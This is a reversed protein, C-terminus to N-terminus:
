YKLNERKELWSKSQSNKNGGNIEQRLKSGNSVAPSLAQHQVEQRPGKGEVRRKLKSKEGKEGEPPQQEGGDRRCQPEDNCRHEGKTFTAFISPCKRSGKERRKEREEGAGGRYDKVSTTALSDKGRDL